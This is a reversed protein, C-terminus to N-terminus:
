KGKGLHKEILKRIVPESKSDVKHTVGPLTIFEGHFGTKLLAAHAQRSSEIPIREDQDGHLGYIYTPKMQRYPEPPYGSGLSILGRLRNLHPSLFPALYGGQSFGFIMTPTDELGLSKVLQFVREATEAPSVITFGRDTDRFYWAYAEKFGEATWIPVPFPANVALVQFPLEKEWWGLRKLLSLAHDQYGHLAIVLGANKPGTLSYRIPLTFTHFQTPWKELKQSM